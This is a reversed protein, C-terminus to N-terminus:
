KRTGVVVLVIGAALALGGALQLPFSKDEKTTAHLDGIQLVTKDQQYNFTKLAIGAVGAIILIIGILTAPKM